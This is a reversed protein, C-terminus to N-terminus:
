KPIVIIYAIINVIVCVIYCLNIPDFVGGLSRFRTKDTANGKTAGFGYVFNNAKGDFGVSRGDVNFINFLLLTLAIFIWLMFFMELNNPQNSFYFYSEIAVFIVVGIFKKIFKKM